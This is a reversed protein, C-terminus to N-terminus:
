LRRWAHPWRREVARRAHARRRQAARELVELWDARGEYPYQFVTDYPTILVPFDPELVFRTAGSGSGLVASTLLADHTDVEPLFLRHEDHLGSLGSSVLYFTGEVEEAVEFLTAASAISMWGWDMCGTPGYILDVGRELEAIPVPPPRNPVAATPWALGCRLVRGLGCWRLRGGPRARRRGRPLLTFKM